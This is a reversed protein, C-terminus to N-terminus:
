QEKIEDEVESITEDIVSSDAGYYPNERRKVTKTTVRSGDSNTVNSISVKNGGFSSTISRVGLLGISLGYYTLINEILAIVISAEILKMACLVVLAILLGATVFSGLATVVLIVSTKGSQESSIMEKWSFRHPDYPMKSVASSIDQRNQVNSSRGNSSNDRRNNQPYRNRRQNNNAPM